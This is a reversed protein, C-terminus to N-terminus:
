QHRTKLFDCDGDYPKQNAHLPTKTAKSADESILQDWDMNLKGACTDTIM